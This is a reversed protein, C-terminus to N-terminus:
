IFSTLSKSLEKKTEDDFSDLYKLTTSTGHHGLAERIQEISAGSKKMITAASHRGFYTSVNKDIGIQAPIKGM